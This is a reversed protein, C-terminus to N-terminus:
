QESTQVQTWYQPLFGAISTDVSVGTSQLSELLRVVAIATVFKSVSAVNM